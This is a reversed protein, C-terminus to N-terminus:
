ISYAIALIIFLLCYVLFMIRDIAAALLIWDYQSGSKTERPIMQHDDNHDEFGAQQERLEEAHGSMMAQHVERNAASHLTFQTRRKM